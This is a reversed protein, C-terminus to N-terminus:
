SSYLQRPFFMKHLTKITFHSHTEHHWTLKQVTCTFKSLINSVIPSYTLPKLAKKIINDLHEVSGETQETVSRKTSKRQQRKKRGGYRAARATQVEGGEAQLVLGCDDGADTNVQGAFPGVPLDRNGGISLVPPLIHVAWNCKFKEITFPCEGLNGHIVWKASNTTVWSKYENM